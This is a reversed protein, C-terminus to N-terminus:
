DIYKKIKGWDKKQVEFPRHYQGQKSAESCHLVAFLLKGDSLIIPNDEVAKTIPTPKKKNYIKCVTLYAPRGMAIIVKPEIIYILEKIFQATKSYWSDKVGGSMKEGTKIGLVCNTFYLPTKPDQLDFGAEDFLKILDLNTKNDKEKQGDSKANEIFYDENGFDQGILLVKADLDAFWWDAWPNLHEGDYKGDEIKFPNKLGEDKFDYKKRRAVLQQYEAMKNKM